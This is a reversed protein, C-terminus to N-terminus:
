FNQLREAMDFALEAFECDYLVQYCIGLNYWSEDEFYNEASTFFIKM